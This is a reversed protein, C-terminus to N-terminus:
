RLMSKYVSITEEVMREVTYCEELRKRGKEGMSVALERDVCLKEIADALEVPNGPEVLIGTEGDVVTEVNGGSRSCIVPLGCAMYELISNSTGEQHINPTSVLVGIDAQAVISMPEALFGPFSARGGDILDRAKEVIMGRIPGDGVGVFRVNSVAQRSVLLRIADVFCLWDKEERMTAVMIAVLDPTEDRVCNQIRDLEFGNYVIHRKKGPVRYAELGALSNSIVGDCLLVQSFSRIKRSSVSGSRASGILPIHRLKCQLFAACTSMWGWTHVVDPQFERILTSVSRAPRIDYQSSRATITLDIGQSRLKQAYFGESLSHVKVIVGYDPLSKALLCFQREAGGAGLSDTLLLVKM